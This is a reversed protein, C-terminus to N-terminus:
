NLRAIMGNLVGAYCVWALSPLLLAAAWGDVRWAAHVAAALAVALAIIIALGADIAHLGFFVPSWAANLALQAAFLCLARRRAGTAPHEWLRWLAAAMGAYLLSWAVPFVWNPPTAAPKALGAYWGPIAPRTVLSGSIAVAAILAICLALRGASRWADGARRRPAAPPPPPTAPGTM